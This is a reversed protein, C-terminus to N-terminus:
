EYKREKRRGGKQKWKKRGIMCVKEGKKRREKKRKSKM